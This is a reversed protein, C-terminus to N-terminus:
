GGEGEPSSNYPIIMQINRTTLIKKEGFTCVGISINRESVCMVSPKSIWRHSSVVSQSILVSFRCLLVGYVNINMATVMYWIGM